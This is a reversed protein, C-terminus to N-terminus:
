ETRKKSSLNFENYVALDAYLFSNAGPLWVSLPDDFPIHAGAHLTPYFLSADNTALGFPAHMLQASSGDLKLGRDVAAMTSSDNSGAKSIVRTTFHIHLLVHQLFQSDAM